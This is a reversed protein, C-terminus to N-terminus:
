NLSIFTIFVYCFKGQLLKQQQFLVTHAATVSMPLIHFLWQSWRIKMGIFAATFKVPFSMTKDKNAQHSYKTNVATTETWGEIDQIHFDGTM